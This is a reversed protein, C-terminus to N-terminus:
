GSGHFSAIHWHTSCSPPVDPDTTSPWCNCHTFCARRSYRDHLDRLSSDLTPVRLAFNPQRVKPVSPVHLLRPFSPDAKYKVRKELGAQGNASKSSSLNISSICAFQCSQYLKLICRSNTNTRLLRRVDEDGCLWVCAGPRSWQLDGPQADQPLPSKWLSKLSM